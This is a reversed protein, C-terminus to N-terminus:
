QNRPPKGSHFSAPMATTAFFSQRMSAVLFGPEAPSKKAQDTGARTCPAPSFDPLQKWRTRGSIVGVPPFHNRLSAGLIDNTTRPISSRSIKGVKRSLALLEATDDDSLFRCPWFSLAKTGIYIHRLNPLEAALLPEIYLALHRAWMILPDGGTFLADSVQPNVKLYDILRDV